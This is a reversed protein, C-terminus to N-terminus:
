RLRQGSSACPNTLLSATLSPRWSRLFALTLFVSVSKYSRIPRDHLYRYSGLRCRDVVVLGVSPSHSIKAVGVPRSTPGTMMDLEYAYAFFSDFSISIAFFESGLALDGVIFFELFVGLFRHFTFHPQHSIYGSQDLYTSVRCPSAQRASKGLVDFWCLLNHVLHDLLRLLTQLPSTLDDNATTPSPCLQLSHQRPHFALLKSILYTPNYSYDPSSLLPSTHSM